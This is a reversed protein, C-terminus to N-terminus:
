QKYKIGITLLSYILFIVFLTTTTYFFISLHTLLYFASFLAVLFLSLLLLIGVVYIVKPNLKFFCKLYIVSLIIIFIAVDLNHFLYALCSFLLSFLAGFLVSDRLMGLYYSYNM